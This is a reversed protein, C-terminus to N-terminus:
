PTAAKRTATDIWGVLHALTEPLALPTDRGDGRAFVSRVSGPGSPRGQAALRATLAVTAATLQARTPMLTLAGPLLDLVGVLPKDGSVGKRASPLGDAKRREKDALFSIHTLGPSVWAAVGAYAPALRRLTAALVEVLANHMDAYAEREAPGWKWTGNPSRTATSDARYPTVSTGRSEFLGPDDYSTAPSQAGRWTFSHEYPVLALPESVVFRDLVWGDRVLPSVDLLSADEGDALCGELEAPVPGGSPAWGAARLATNIGRHERSTVYPKYKTCPLLVAIRGRDAGPVPTPTWSDRVYALWDAILPHTLAEVNEQPSYLCLAPDLTFPPRIKRASVPLRADRTLEAANM